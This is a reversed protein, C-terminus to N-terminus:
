LWLVYDFLWLLLVCLVLVYVVVVVICVGDDDFVLVVICVIGVVFEENDIVIGKYVICDFEVEFLELDFIMNLMYCLLVMMCVLVVCEDCLLLVFLLKGSVSCYVFVCLGFKLDFWLLWDVEVCDFYVVEMDYLVILNCIEVFDVVFWEFIVYCLWCMGVYLMVGIGFWVFCLGVVYVNKCGLECIVFGGVEFLVFMWYLLVKLIDVDCVFDVFLM